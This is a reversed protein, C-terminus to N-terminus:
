TNCLHTILFEKKGLIMSNHTVVIAQVSIRQVAIGQAVM